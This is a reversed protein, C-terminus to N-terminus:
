ESVKELQDEYFSGGDVFPLVPEDFRINVRVGDVQIVTGLKGVSAEAVRLSVIMPRFKLQQVVKVRDGVEFEMKKM